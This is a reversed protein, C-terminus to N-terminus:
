TDKKIRAVNRQAFGRFLQGRTAGKWDEPNIEPIDSLDISSRIM